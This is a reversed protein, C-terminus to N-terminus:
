WTQTNHVCNFLKQKSDNLCVVLIERTKKGNNAFLRRARQENVSMEVDVDYVFRFFAKKHGIKRVTFSKKASYYNKFM